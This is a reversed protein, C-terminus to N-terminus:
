PTESTGSGDEFTREDLRMVGTCGDIGNDTTVADTM